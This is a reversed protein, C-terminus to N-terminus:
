KGAGVEDGTGFPDVAVVSILLTMPQQMPRRWDRRKTPPMSDWEAVLQRIREQIQGFDGTERLRFAVMRVVKHSQESDESSASDCCSLILNTSLQALAFPLSELTGSWKDTIHTKGTAGAYDELQRSYLGRAVEMLPKAVFYHLGFRRDETGPDEVKDILGAESLLALHRFVTAKSIGTKERLQAPTTKGFLMLYAYIRLCSELQTITTLLAMRTLRAELDPSFEAPRRIHM